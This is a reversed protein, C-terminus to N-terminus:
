LFLFYCTNALINLFQFGQASNISIHLLEAVIPTLITTGSFILVVKHDLLESRHIFCSKWYVTM